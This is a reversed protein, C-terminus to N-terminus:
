NIKLAHILMQMQKMWNFKTNQLENNMQSLEDLLQKYRGMKKVLHHCKKM